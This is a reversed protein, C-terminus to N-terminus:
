ATGLASAKMYSCERTRTAHGPTWLLHRTASPGIPKPSPISPAQGAFKPLPEGGRPLPLMHQLPKLAPLVAPLVAARSRNLSPQRQQRNSPLLSTSPAHPRHTHQPPKTPQEQIPASPQQSQPPKYPSTPSSSPPITTTPATREKCPNDPWPPWAPITDYYYVRAEGGGAPWRSLRPATIPTQGLPPAIPQWMAGFSVGTLPGALALLAFIGLCGLLLTRPHAVPQCRQLLCREQPSAIPDRRICPQM